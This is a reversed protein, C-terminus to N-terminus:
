RMFEEGVTGFVEEGTFVLAVDKAALAEFDGETNGATVIRCEGPALVRGLAAVVDPGSGVVLITAPDGYAPESFAPM